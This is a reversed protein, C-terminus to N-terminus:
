SCRGELEEQEGKLRVLTEDKSENHDQVSSLKKKLERFEVDKKMASEKLFIIKEEM